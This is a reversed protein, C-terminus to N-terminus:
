AARMAILPETNNQLINGIGPLVPLSVWGPTVAQASYHNNGASYQTGSGLVSVSGTRYSGCNFGATGDLLLAMLYEGRPLHIATFTSVKEGSTSADLDPSEAILKKPVGNAISYLGVRFKTATGTAAVRVKFADYYGAYKVIFPCLYLTDAALTTSGNAGVVVSGSLYARGSAISSRVDMHQQLAAVGVVAAATLDVPSPTTNDLTGNFLTEIIQLRTLSNAASNYQYIGTERNDGDLISCEIVDGDAVRVSFPLYKASYAGGLPIDGVGPASAVTEQIWNHSM